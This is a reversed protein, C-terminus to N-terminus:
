PQWQYSYTWTDGGDDDGGTASITLTGGAMGAPFAWSLETSGSGKQCTAEVSWEKTGYGGPETWIARVKLSEVWYEDIDDSCTGQASLTTTWTDGPPASAPPPGWSVSGQRNRHPPGEFNFSTSIRGNSSEVTSAVDYSHDAGGGIAVAVGCEPCFRAQSTQQAGCHACHKPAPAGCGLCFRADATLEGGCSGCTGGWSKAM